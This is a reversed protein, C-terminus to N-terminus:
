HCDKQCKTPTGRGTMPIAAYPKTAASPNCNGLFFGKPIPSDLPRKIKSAVAVEMAVALPYKKYMRLVFNDPADQEYQRIDAKKDNLKNKMVKFTHKQKVNRLSIIPRQQLQFSLMSFTRIKEGVRESEYSKPKCSIWFTNPKCNDTANKTIAANLVEYPVEAGADELHNFNHM